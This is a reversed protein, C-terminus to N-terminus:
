ARRKRRARIVGIATGTLVVALLLWLAERSYPAMMAAREIPGDASRARDQTVDATVPAQESPATTDVVLTGLLSSYLIDLQAPDEIDLRMHSGLVDGRGDVPESGELVGGPNLFSDTLGPVNALNSLHEAAYAPFAILFAFLVILLQKM